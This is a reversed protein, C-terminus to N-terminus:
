TTRQVARRMSTRSSVRRFSGRHHRLLLSFVRPMPKGNFRNTNSRNIPVFHFFSLSRRSHFATSRRRVSVLTWFAASRDSFLVIPRRRRTMTRLRVDDRHQEGVMRTRHVETARLDRGFQLAFLLKKPSGSLLLVYENEYLLQLADAKSAPDDNYDQISKALLATAAAFSRLDNFELRDFADLADLVSM